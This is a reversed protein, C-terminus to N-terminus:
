GIKGMAHRAHTDNKARLTGREGLTYAKGLKMARLKGREGCAAHRCVGQRVADRAWWPTLVRGAHLAGCEGSDIVRGVKGTPSM